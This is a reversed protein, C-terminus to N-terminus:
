LLQGVVGLAVGMGVVIGGCGKTAAANGSGDFAQCAEVQLGYCAQSSLSSCVQSASAAGLSPVATITAGGNPASVTVGQAGGMLANTCSAADSQCRTYASSCAAANTYTTAIYPFPYFANSVTSTGSGANATTAQVFPGSTTSATAFPVTTSATVAGTVSAGLTGTCAAGQPCCAIVNNRDASCVATRPCCLGAANLNTCAYYNTACNNNNNQRKLLEAISDVPTTDNNSTPLQELQELAPEFAALTDPVALALPALLLPALITRM